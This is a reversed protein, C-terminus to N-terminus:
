PVLRGRILSGDAGRFAYLHVQAALRGASAATWRGERARYASRFAVRGRVDTVTLVGDPLQGHPLLRFGGRSPVLRLGIRPPETAPRPAEGPLGVTGECARTASSDIGAALFAAQAAADVNRYADWMPRMGAPKSAIESLAVLAQLRVHGHSDNVACAADIARASAATRPMARLANRRAGWAPHSLLKRLVPNWRASDADFRGLGHLTWLAHVVRPNNGVADVSSDRSLIDGLLAGLEESYGEGLLLRQASLRWHLNQNAFAAVLQPVTAPALDLLPEPDKDAPTVRWIRV